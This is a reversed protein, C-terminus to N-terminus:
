IVDCRLTIMAEAIVRFAQWTDPPPQSRVSGDDSRTTSNTSVLRRLQKMEVSESSEACLRHCFCYYVKNRCSVAALCLVYFVCFCLLAFCTVYRDIATISQWWMGLLHWVWHTCFWHVNPVVCQQIPLNKESVKFKRMTILLVKIEQTYKVIANQSSWVNMALWLEAFSIVSERWIM